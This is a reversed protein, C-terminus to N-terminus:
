GRPNACTDIIDLGESESLSRGNKFHRYCAKAAERFAREYNASQTRYEFKGLLPNKASSGREGKRHEFVFRFERSETSAWAHEAQLWLALSALVLILLRM